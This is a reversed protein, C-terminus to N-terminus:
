FTLGLSVGLVGPTLYFVGPTIPGFFPKTLSVGVAPTGGTFSVGYLGSVTVKQSSKTSEKVTSSETETESTGTESGTKTAETDETITTTTEKTGDPYVKETVVTKKHIEKRSSTDKVKVVKVVEITKIETKVKEPASWRGFGYATLLAVVSLFIKAKVGM